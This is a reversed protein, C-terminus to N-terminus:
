RREKTGNQKVAKGNVKTRRKTNSRKAEFTEGEEERVQPHGGTFTM